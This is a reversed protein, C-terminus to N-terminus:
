GALDVWAQHMEPNEKLAQKLYEGADVESHIYIADDPLQHHLKPEFLCITLHKEDVNVVFGIVMNSENSEFVFQAPAAMLKNEVSAPLAYVQVLM